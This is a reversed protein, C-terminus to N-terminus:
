SVVGDGDHGAGNPRDGGAKDAAGNSDAPRGAKDTGAADFLGPQDAEPLTTGSSELQGRLRLARDLPGFDATKLGEEIARLGAVVDPDGRRYAAAMERLEGLAIDDQSEAAPAPAPQLTAPAGADIEAFSQDIRPVFENFEARSRDRCDAHFKRAVERSYGHAVMAHELVHRVLEQLEWTAYRSKRWVVHHKAWAVEGRRAANADATCVLQELTGLREHLGPLAHGLRHELAGVRAIMAEILAMLDANTNGKLANQLIERGVSTIATGTKRSLEELRQMSDADLRLGLQARKSDHM